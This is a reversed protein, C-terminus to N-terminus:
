IKIFQINDTNNCYKIQEKFIELPLKNTTHFFKRNVTLGEKDDFIWIPKNFKKAVENNFTYYIVDSKPFNYFQSIYFHIYNLKQVPIQFPYANHVDLNGIVDNIKNEYVDLYYKVWSTEKNARFYSGENGNECSCDMKLSDIDVLSDIDCYIFDESIHAYFLRLEDGIFSLKKKEYAMKSNKLKLIDPLCDELTLITKNKYFGVVYEAIPNKLYDFFNFLTIM